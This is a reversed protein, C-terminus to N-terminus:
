PHATEADSVLVEPLKEGPRIGIYEIECGEAVATALDVVRMSPIKPVFVEGDQMQEICKITFRVGQDISLWFRTMRKDTITVRGAQRQRIFLPVVSGRSGVVNGYRVCAFRTGMGGAYANSQVILREAALTTAGDLRVPNAAKDTSLAM